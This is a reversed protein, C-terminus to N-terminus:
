TVDFNALVWILYKSCYVMGIRGVLGIDDILPMPFSDQQMQANLPKYNGCFKMNGDKKVLLTV